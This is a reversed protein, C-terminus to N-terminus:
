QQSPPSPPNLVLIGLSTNMQVPTGAGQFVAQINPVNNQRVLADAYRENTNRTASM